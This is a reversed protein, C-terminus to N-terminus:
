RPLDRFLFLPTKDANKREEGPFSLSLSLSASVDMDDEEEKEKGKSSHHSSSQEGGSNSRGALFPLLGMTGEEEERTEEGGLALELDPVTGILRGSHKNNNNGLPILDDVLEMDEEEEEEEEEEEREANLDLPFVVKPSKKMMGSDNGFTDQSFSSSSSENETKLKKNASGERLRENSLEVKQNVTAPRTVEWLPRKRDSAQSCNLDKELPNGQDHPPIESDTVTMPVDKRGGSEQDEIHQQVKKVLSDGSNSGNDQRSIHNAGPEEEKPAIEEKTNSSREISSEKDSPNEHSSVDVGNQTENINRPNERLHSAKELRKSPYSTQCFDNPDQDRALVNSALLSPNKQPNTCIEKRGLFVGWLFYLMNWRQFNPPLQNSAFVLLEVNDLNGKLALDKKMMNDVLPKYNREYSEVDKAFFFLAIHDEKTGIDQFQAPWTSLRPVENLSFKEPFKNVVEAVKPSALTSLHAQMGSHMASQERAKRVELNGQWISEHDPIASNRLPALPSVIPWDRMVPKVSPTNVELEVSRPPMADAGSPVLQKGNTVITQKYPDPAPWSTTHMKSPLQDRLTKDPHVNSALAADCQELVRNKSFSPKKRLAADVAARLRNGKNIDERVIKTTSPDSDSVGSTDSSEATQGGKQSSSLGKGGSLLSSRQRKGLAEKSKKVVEKFERSRPLGDQSAVNGNSPVGEGACSTSTLEDKCDAQSVSQERSNGGSAIPNELRNRNLNSVQKTLSCRKGDSQLGKLDRTSSRPTLKQDTSAASANAEASRDKLQKSSKGEQSHVKSALIKAESDNGSSSGTDTTRSSMSKSVIGLGGEKIDVPTYEKGTKKKPLIVDDMLQVKPKSSSSNFSSSKLFAGKPPQLQLGTSRAGETTNSFSAQHSLKGRPRDLGKLSTERSLPGIRPLISKKPSGTSGEVAQRKADPAAEIKDAHRKGSSQPSHIIETEIKRKAEQKQKEAEECEECLWDGEPVENLMVRMCYTHEAGDSCGTCIALLDERGADGCIDCVKVDHEVEADDSESESMVSSVSEDSKSDSRSSKGNKGKQGSPTSGEVSQEKNNIEDQQGEVCDTQDLVDVSASVKHKMRSGSSSTKSMLAAVGSGDSKGSRGITERSEANESLADNSSCVFNSAESATKKSGNRSNVVVSTLLSDENVSCQSGAVGHGNEDSSEDSKSGTVGVNRHMCSSCPASCVNCTGSDANSVGRRNISRKGARRDAM